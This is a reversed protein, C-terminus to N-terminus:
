NIQLVKLETRRNKQHLEEKYQINKAAKITSDPVLPRSCGYGMAKIQTTKVNFKTTLADKVSESRAVSLTHNATARGRTDTHSSIEFVINKHANVFDAIIKLSDDNEHGNGDLVYVIEPIKIIDGIKFVTDKFTKTAQGASVTSILFFL